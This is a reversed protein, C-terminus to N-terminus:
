GACSLELCRVSKGLVLSAVIWASVVGGWLVIVIGLIHFAWGALVWTWNLIWNEVVGHSKGLGPDVWVVLALLDLVVSVLFKVFSVVICELNDLSNSM